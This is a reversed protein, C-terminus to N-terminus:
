YPFIPILAQRREKSYPLNYLGLVLEVGCNYVQGCLVQLLWCSIFVILM